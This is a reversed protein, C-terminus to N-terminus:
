KACYACFRRIGVKGVTDDNTKEMHFFVFLDGTFATLTLTTPATIQVGNILMIPAAKDVLCIQYFAYTDDVADVTTDTVAIDTTGDDSHADINLDNDMHFAIFAAIAEVDTTPAASIFGWDRDLAANDGVEKSAVWGEFIPGDDVDIADDSLMGAYAAEAVADFEADFTVGDTTAVVGLGLSELETFPTKGLEIIDHRTAGLKVYVFGSAGQAVIASSTQPYTPDNKPGAVALGLYDNGRYDYTALGTARDMYVRQGAVFVISATKAVKAITNIQAAGLDQLSVDVGDIVYGPLGSHLTTFDGATKDAAPVIDLTQSGSKYTEM